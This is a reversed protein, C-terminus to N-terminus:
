SLGEGPKAGCCGGSTGAEDESRPKRSSRAVADKFVARVDGLCCKGHPNTEDCRDLGQRCKEGIAQAVSCEARTADREVDEFTYGFCYCLTRPSTREKLGVSVKLASRPLTRGDTSFYVVDCSPDGCFFWEEGEALRLAEDKLLHSLTTAGVRKSARTKICGAM